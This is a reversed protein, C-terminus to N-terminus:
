TATMLSKAVFVQDLAWSRSKNNQESVWTEFSKRPNIRGQSDKGAVAKDPNGAWQIIEPHVTRTLILRDYESLPIIMLGAMDPLVEDGFYDALSNTYFVSENSQMMMWDLLPHDQALNFNIQETLVGNIFYAVGNADFQEMILQLDQQDLTELDNSFARRALKQNIGSIRNKLRTGAAEVLKTVKAVAIKHLQLCLNRTMPSIVKPTSNHCALLGWLRDHYTISLTVTSSIHMNQLYELHLESTYRYESYTLDPTELGPKCVIYKKASKVSDIFRLPKIGLLRRSPKPIDSKPFHHGLYSPLTSAEDLYEHAVRGNYEEDFQYFKIREFGTLLRMQAILEKKLAELNACSNLADIMESPRAQTSPEKLPEFELIIEKEDQHKFCAFHLNPDTKLINKPYYRDQQTKDQLWDRLAPDDTFLTDYTPIKGGQLLDESVGLVELDFYRLRVLSGIGQIAGVLHIPEKDCNSLDVGNM